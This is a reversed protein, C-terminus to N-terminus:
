SLWHRLIWGRIECHTQQHCQFLVGAFIFVIISGIVVYTMTCPQQVLFGPKIVKLIDYHHNLIRFTYQCDNLPQKEIWRRAIITQKLILSGGLLASLSLVLKKSGWFNTTRCLTQNVLDTFFNSIGANYVNSYPDILM